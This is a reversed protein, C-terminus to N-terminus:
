EQLQRLIWVGIDSYAEILISGLLFLMQIMVLKLALLLEMGVFLRVFEMSLNSDLKSALFVIALQRVILVVQHVLSAVLNQIM